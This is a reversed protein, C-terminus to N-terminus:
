IYIKKINKKEVRCIKILCLNNIIILLLLVVVVLAEFFNEHEVVVVTSGFVCASAYVRM